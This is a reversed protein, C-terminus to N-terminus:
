LGYGCDMSETQRWMKDRRRNCAKISWVTGALKKREDPSMAAITARISAIYRAQSPKRRRGTWPHAVHVLAMGYRYTDRRGAVRGPPLGHEFTDIEFM